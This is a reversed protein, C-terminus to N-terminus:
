KVTQLVNHNMFGKKNQEKARINYGKKFIVKTKYGMLLFSTIAMKHSLKKSNKQIVIM